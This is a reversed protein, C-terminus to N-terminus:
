PATSEEADEAPCGDSEREADTEAPPVTVGVYAGFVFPLGVALAWPLGVIRNSWDTFAVTCLFATPVVAGLVLFGWLRVRWRCPIRRQELVKRGLLFCLCAIGAVATAVLCCTVLAEGPDPVGPLLRSTRSRTVFVPLVVAGLLAGAAFLGLGPEAHGPRQDGGGREEREVLRVRDSPIM